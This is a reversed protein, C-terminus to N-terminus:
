HDPLNRLREAAQEATLDRQAQALMEYGVMFKKVTASRLLPPFYMGHFVWHKNCEKYFEGTPAGHWGMSYPFSTNFLNDYKNTISKMIEALSTKEELTLDTIRQPLPKSEKPTPLIMTEFPWVAWYPVLVIWDANSCVIRVKKELELVIYDHLMPRGHKVWYKRQTENKIRPENPLFSSAWIQCHPHPNSCGMTAGKNEFIQVWAYKEGLEVTEEVWKDIVNTIEPVTMKPISIDSRPHFCMVRCTGKAARVQFLENEENKDSIPEPIEELLAPFDNTFVFTSEYNPNIQGNSRVAEPCLPNLPDHAKIPENSAQETQGTWPRLMRHPSVLIWDEKLPNFRMHQHETM